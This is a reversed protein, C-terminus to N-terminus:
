CSSCGPGGGNQIPALRLGPDPVQTSQATDPCGTPLPCKPCRVCFCKLEIAVLLASPILGPGSAGEQALSPPAM